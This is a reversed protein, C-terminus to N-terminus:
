IQIVALKTEPSSQFWMQTGLTAIAVVPMYAPQSYMAMGLLLATGGIVARMGLDLALGAKLIFKFLFALNLATLVIYAIGGVVAGNLGGIQHTLLAGVGAATGTSIVNFLTKYWPRDQFINAILTALIVTGIVALTGMMLFMSLLFAEEIQIAEKAGDHFVFIPIIMVAALGTAFLIIEPM